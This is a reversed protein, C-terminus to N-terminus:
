TKESPDLWGSLGELQLPKKQPINGLVFIGKCQRREVAKISLASPLAQKTQLPKSKRNNIPLCFPVLTYRRPTMTPEQALRDGYEPEKHLTILSVIKHPMPFPQRCCNLTFKNDKYNPHSNVIGKQNMSPQRNGQCHRSHEFFEAAFGLKPQKMRFHPERTSGDHQLIPTGHLLQQSVCAILMRRM